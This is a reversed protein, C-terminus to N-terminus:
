VELRYIGPVTQQVLRTGYPATYIGQDPDGTLDQATHYRLPSLGESYRPIIELKPWEEFIDLLEVLTVMRADCGDSGYLIREVVRLKKEPVYRSDLIIHPTAKRGSIIQPIANLEWSMPSLSVDKSRTQHTIDSPSLICNFILHVQYAYKEPDLDSGISSRYSFDFRLREQQTYTMGSDTTLYGDLESPHTYSSVSAKYDSVLSEQYIKVSNMHTSNIGHGVQSDVVNILGNWPTAKTKTYFIGHDVGSEYLREGPKDWEIKAM